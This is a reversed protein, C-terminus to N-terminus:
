LFMGLLWKLLKVCQLYSMNSLEGGGQPTQELKGSSCPPPGRTGDAAGAVQDPGLLM